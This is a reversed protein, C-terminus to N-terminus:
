KATKPKVEYTVGDGCRVESAIAGSFATINEVGGHSECLEISRRLEWGPLNQSCGSLIVAIFILILKNM